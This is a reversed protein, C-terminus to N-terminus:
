VGSDRRADQVEAIMEARTDQATIMQAVACDLARELRHHVGRGLTAGDSDKLTVRFAGRKGGTLKCHTTTRDEVITIGMLLIDERDM